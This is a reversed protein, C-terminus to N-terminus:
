GGVMREEETGLPVVDEGSIAETDTGLLEEEEEVGEDSLVLSSGTHRAEAGLPSM